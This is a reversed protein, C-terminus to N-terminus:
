TRRRNRQTSRPTNWIYDYWHLIDYEAKKYDISVEQLYIEEIFEEKSEFPYGFYKM